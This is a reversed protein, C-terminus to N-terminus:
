PRRPKRTPRRLSIAGHTTPGRCVPTPGPSPSRDSLNHEQDNLFGGHGDFFTANVGVDAHRTFPGSNAQQTTSDLMQRMETMNDGQDTVLAVSTPDDWAELTRM